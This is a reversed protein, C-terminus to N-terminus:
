QFCVRGPASGVLRKTDSPASGVLRKTDSYAAFM